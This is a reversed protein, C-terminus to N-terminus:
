AARWEFEWVVAPHPADLVDAAAAEHAARRLAETAETIPAAAGVRHALRYAAVVERVTNEISM